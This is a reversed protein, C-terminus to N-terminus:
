KDLVFLLCWRHQQRRILQQQLIRANGNKKKKKRLSTKPIKTEQTKLTKVITV